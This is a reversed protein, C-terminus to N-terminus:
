VVREIILRRNEEVSKYIGFNWYSIELEIELIGDINNAEIIRCVIDRELIDKSIVEM